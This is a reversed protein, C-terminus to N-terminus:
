QNISEDCISFKVRGDYLDECIFYEDKFMESTFISRSRHFEYNREYKEAIFEGRAALSKKVEINLFDEKFMNRNLIIEIGM